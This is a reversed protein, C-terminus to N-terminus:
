TSAAAKKACVISKLIESLTNSYAVLERNEDILKNMQSNYHEMFIKLYETIMRDFDSAKLIILENESYQREESKEETKEKSKEESKPDDATPTFTNEIPPKTSPSCKKEHNLLSGHFKYKKNCCKCAYELQPM